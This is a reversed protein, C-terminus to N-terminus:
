SGKHKRVDVMSVVSITIALANLAWYQWRDMGFGMRDLLADFAGYLITIQLLYM